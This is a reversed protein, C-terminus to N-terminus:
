AILPLQASVLGFQADNLLDKVMLKVPTSITIRILISGCKGPNFKFTIPRISMFRTHNPSVGRSTDSLADNTDSVEIGAPNLM